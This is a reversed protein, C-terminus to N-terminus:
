KGVYIDTHDQCARISWVPNRVFCLSDAVRRVGKRYSDAVDPMWEAFELFVVFSGFCAQCDHLNPLVCRCLLWDDSCFNCEPWSVRLCNTMETKVETFLDTPPCARESGNGADADVGFQYRLLGVARPILTRDADREELRVSPDSCPTQHLIIGTNFSHLDSYGSTCVPQFCNRSLGTPLHLHSSAHTHTPLRPHPPPSPPFTM